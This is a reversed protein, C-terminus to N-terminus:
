RPCGKSQAVRPVHLSIARNRRRAVGLSGRRRGAPANPLLIDSTRIREGRGGEVISSSESEPDHLDRDNEAKKPEPLLIPAFRPSVAAIGQSDNSPTPTNAWPMPGFSLRDIQERLYDPLLHGYTETTMRPDTHRLIRQVAAVDAGRMLLSATTHRLHHFRVPRVEGSPWLKMECRPCRRLQDDQATEVHGCGKRRCKHLWREVIGARHLARRLVIEVQVADSMMSGDPAPFVLDSPSRAIADELYPVLEAAIPIVDARGSKTTERRYSRATFPPRSSRAGASPSPASSPRSRM